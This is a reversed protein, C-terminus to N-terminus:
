AVERADLIAARPSRTESITPAVARAMRTWGEEARARIHVEHASVRFRKRGRPAWYRACISFQSPDSKRWGAAFPRAHLGNVFAGRPTSRGM